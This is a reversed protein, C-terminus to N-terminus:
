NIKKNIYSKISLTNKYIFEGGGEDCGSLNGDNIITNNKKMTEKNDYIYAYVKYCVMDRSGTAKGWSMLSIVNMESSVNMFFVSVNVPSFNNKNEYNDIIVDGSESEKVLNVGKDTVYKIRVNPVGKLSFPGNTIVEYDEVYDRGTRNDKKVGKNKYGCISHKLSLPTYSGKENIVTFSKAFVNNLEKDFFYYSNVTMVSDGTQSSMGINIGEVEGWKCSFSLRGRINAVKAGGELAIDISKHGHSNKATLIYYQTGDFDDEGPKLDFETACANM